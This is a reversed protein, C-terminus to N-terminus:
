RQVLLKKRVKSGEVTVEVIYMGPKLSSIDITESEPRIAYVQKGTLTYITVKDITFGEVSIHLEQTAPNPYLMPNDKIYQEDIIVANAECSDLIEGPSNCGIDNSNIPIWGSTNELYACISKVACESLADNHQIHLDGGISAVEDLGSLSILLNNHIIWLDGGISNVSNLGYLNSIDDGVIEVRGALDICGPFNVQFSDIETQSQFYYNGYPLCPLVISCYSALEPLSNCGNANNFITVSGNPSVLYNCISMVECSTLSYNRQILLNHISNPEINELGTLTALPYNSVIELNGDISSLNELGELSNLSDNHAIVLSGGISILNELGALSVLSNHRINLYGGISTLNVLGSLDTISPNYEIMVGGGVSILNELGMLSQLSPNGNPWDGIGLYSGITVISNLGNLNNIDSGYIVLKGVIESCGPYNIQFSDIEAQTTFTIGEPLCPQSYVSVLTSILIIAILVKKM